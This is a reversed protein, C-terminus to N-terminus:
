RSPTKVADIIGGLAAPILLSALLPLLGASQAAEKFAKKKTSATKAKALRIIHGRDKRLQKLEQKSARIKGVLLNKSCKCVDNILNQPAYDIIKKRITPKRVNGIRRLLVPTSSAVQM